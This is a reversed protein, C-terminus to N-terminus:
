SNEDVVSQYIEIMKKAKKPWLAKLMVSRRAGSGLEARVDPKNVMCRIKVSLDRALEKPNTLPVTMGSSGDVIFGPGGHDVTIVPMGWRMAEYLVGGMSERFSPFLLVDHSQYYPEIEQRPIYGEFTIRDRVGANEAMQSVVSIEEGKGIVTLTVKPMDKLYALAMVSERLGKTRVARGVHLLKLQNPHVPREIVDPVSDVGIGLFPEFRRLKLDAMVDQMYPAVGLVLNAGTFGRRLFPDFKFRFQDLKRLKTFWPARGAKGEAFAPHMPIAGGVPGIVYPVGLGSLPSSYRPARPLMQHILDYQEGSALQAKLWRRVQSYFWPIAPKATANFREFKTLFAPEPWSHVEVDPLQESTPVRHPAQLVLVIPEILGTDVMARVLRFSTAAEGVDNGDLNHAIIVVRLPKAINVM